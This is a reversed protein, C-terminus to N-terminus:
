GGRRRRVRVPIAAHQPAAVAFAFLLACVSATILFLAEAVPAHSGLGLAGFVLTLAVFITSARLAVNRTM